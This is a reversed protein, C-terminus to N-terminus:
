LAGVGGRRNQLSSRQRMRAPQLKLHPLVPSSRTHCAFWLLAPPLSSGPGGSIWGM